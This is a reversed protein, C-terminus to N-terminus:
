LISDKNLIYPNLTNLNYKSNPTVSIYICSRDFVFLLLTFDEAGVLAIASVIM